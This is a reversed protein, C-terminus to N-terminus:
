AEAFSTFGNDQAILFMRWIKEATLPYKFTELAPMEEITDIDAGEKKYCLLWLANLVPSIKKRSGHVKPLLKQVMASDIAEEEDMDSYLKCITIYRSMEHATRYGFEKQIKSLKDFMELLTTKTENSLSDTFQKNAINVFDAARESCDVLPTITGSCDLYKEMQNRNIRFEVVNARDLVKPSFLYTTEDVNITGIIFFNKPLEITAPVDANGKWLPIKEGSEMASLFDAFYREVYSMNMEDLVLFYPKDQNEPKSAELILELAGNDPLVYEGLRIANPYGLLHERNTWDAGVPILKYQSSDKCILKPFAMALRTKGSGTLGSLIVFPKTLLSCIFREVFKSDFILGSESITEIVVKIDFPMSTTEKEEDLLFEAYKKLSCSSRRRDTKKDKDNTVSDSRIEEVLTKIDDSSTIFYASPVGFLEKAKDKVFKKDIANVYGAYEGKLSELYMMYKSKMEEVNMIITTGIQKAEFTNENDTAFFGVNVVVESKAKIEDGEKTYCESFKAQIADRLASRFMFRARRTSSPRDIYADYVKSEFLVKISLNNTIANEVFDHNKTFDMQSIVFGYKLFSLDVRHKFKLEAM